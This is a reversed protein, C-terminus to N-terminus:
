RWNRGASPRQGATACANRGTDAVGGARAPAGVTRIGIIAVAVGPVGWAYRLTARYDEPAALRAGTRQVPRGLVKMAIVGIGRRRAEPLAREAFSYVHREVFNLTCMFLEIHATEFVPLARAPRPSPRSSSPSFPTRRAGAVEQHVVPKRHRMEAGHARLRLDGEPSVRIRGTGEFALEM